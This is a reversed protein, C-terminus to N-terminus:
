KRGFFAQTLLAIGSLARSAGFPDRNLSLTPSPFGNLITRSKHSQDISRGLGQVTSTGNQVPTPSHTTTCVMGWQKSVSGRYFVLGRTASLSSLYSGIPLFWDVVFSYPLLEWALLLPDTIGTSAMRAAFANDERFQIVYRSRAFHQSLYDERWGDGQRCLGRDTKFQTHSGTAVSPRNEAFTKAILEASGKIDSLLPRWGYNFELWYNALNSPHPKVEKRLDKGAYKMGLLNVAHNLNGRRVALAASALRNVSKSIMSVTQKREAFAQALNVSSDKLKQLVKQRAKREVDAYTILDQPIGVAYWRPL